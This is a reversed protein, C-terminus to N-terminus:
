LGTGKGVGYAIGVSSSVGVDDIYFCHCWGDGNGAAVDSVIPSVAVM